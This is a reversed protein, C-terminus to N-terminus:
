KELVRITTKPTTTHHAPPKTKPSPHTAYATQTPLAPMPQPRPIPPLPCKPNSKPFTREAKTLLGVRVAELEAEQEPLTRQQREISADAVSADIGCDEISTGSTRCSSRIVWPAERSPVDRVGALRSRCAGLSTQATPIVLLLFFTLCSLIKIFRLHVCCQM